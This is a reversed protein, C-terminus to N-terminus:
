KALDALSLDRYALVLKRAARADALLAVL